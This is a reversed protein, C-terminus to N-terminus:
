KKDRDPASNGYLAAVVPKEPSQADQRLAMEYEKRGRVPEGVRALVAALHYHAVPRDAAKASKELYPEAQDYKGQLYYTWGVTDEVVASNPALAM